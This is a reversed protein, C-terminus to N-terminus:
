LKELLAVVTKIKVVVGKGLTASIEDIIMEASQKIQAAWASNEVGITLIKNRYSKPFSHQLAEAHVVRPAIKRYKECVVAAEVERKVGLTSM